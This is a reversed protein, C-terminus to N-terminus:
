ASLAARSTKRENRLAEARAVRDSAQVATLGGIEVLFRGIVARDFVERLRDYIQSAVSAHCVEVCRAWFVIFESTSVTREHAHETVFSIDDDSHRHMHFLGHLGFTPDTIAAIEVSFRDALDEPAFRIGYNTELAPRFARAILEDEGTTADPTFASDSSLANLLRKSRLSLGGNGVAMGDSVFPWRAGIDDYALFEDTWASPFIVYGDWQVLLM